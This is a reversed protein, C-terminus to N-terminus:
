FQGTALWVNCDTIAGSMVAKGSLSISSMLCAGDVGFLEMLRVTTVICDALYHSRKSGQM